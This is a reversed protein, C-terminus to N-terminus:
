GEQKAADSDKGLPHHSALLHYCPPHCSGGGGGGEEGQGAVPLLM